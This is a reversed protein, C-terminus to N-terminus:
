QKQPVEAGRERFFVDLKSFWERRGAESVFSDFQWSM